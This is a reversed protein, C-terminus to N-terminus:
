YGGGQGQMSILVQGMDTLSKLAADRHPAYHMLLFGALYSDPTLRADLVRGFNGGQCASWWLYMWGPAEAPLAGFDAMYDGYM